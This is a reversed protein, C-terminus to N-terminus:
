GALNQNQCVLCRLENILQNYDAEMQASEFEYAEVSAQAPMILGVVCIGAVYVLVLGIRM